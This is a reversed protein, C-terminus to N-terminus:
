TPHHSRRRRWLILGAVAVAVAVAAAVTSSPRSAPTAPPVPGQALLRTATCSNDKFPSSGNVPHFEYHGGPSFTRDVSSAGPGPPGGLVEVTQGADTRVMARRGDSHTATVVGRFAYPSPTPEAACSAVAPSAVPLRGLVLVAAVLLAAALTRPTRVTAGGAQRDRVREDAM